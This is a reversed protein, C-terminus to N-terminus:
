GSVDGMEAQLKKPGWFQEMELVVVESMGRQDCSGLGKTQMTLGQWGWQGGAGM